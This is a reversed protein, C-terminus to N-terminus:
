KMRGILGALQKRGADESSVGLAVAVHRGSRVAVLNGYFGDKGAFGGEGPAQLGHIDKGGKSVAERYRALGDRAAAPSELAVIVLKSEKAGPPTAAKYRAEFGNTFYSQALVDKPIYIATHAVQNETPFFGVEPPEAGPSTVKGAIAQALKVLEKGVDGKDTFTTVKVYYPGSWFNVSAGGSYGENGVPLFQYEPNREESYKGFANLPDKMRYIEVVAQAATGAQTYEATVVEQVGYNVYGDAAGDILEWLNEATFARAARSVAWGPVEDKGPLLALVQPSGQAPASAASAAQPAPASEKKDAPKSGSCGAWVVGAVVLMMLSSKQM